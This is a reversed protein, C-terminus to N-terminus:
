EKVAAAELLAAEKLARVVSLRKLATESAEWHETSFAAQQFSQEAKEYDKARLHLEGLGLYAFAAYDSDRNEVLYDEYAQIALEPQNPNKREIAMPKTIAAWAGPAGGWGVPGKVDRHETAIADLRAIATDYQGMQFEAHGQAWQISGKLWDVVVHKELIEKVKEPYGGELMAALHREANQRSEGDHLYYDALAHHCSWIALSPASQSVFEELRKAGEAGGDPEIRKASEMFLGASSFQYPDDPDEAMIALALDCSAELTAVGEKYDVHDKLYTGKVLVYTNLMHKAFSSTLEKAAPLKADLDSMVDIIAGPMSMIGKHCDQLAWYAAVGEPEEPFKDFVRINAVVADAWLGSKYLEQADALMEAASPGEVLLDTGEAELDQAYVTGTPGGLASVFAFALIGAVCASNITFVRM